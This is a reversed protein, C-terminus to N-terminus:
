FCPPIPFIAQHTLANATWVCVQTRIGLAWTFLQTYSYAGTVGTSHLTSAPSNGATWMGGLSLFLSPRLLIHCLYLVGM